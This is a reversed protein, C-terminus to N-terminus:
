GKRSGVELSLSSCVATHERAVRTTDRILVTREADTTVGTRGGRGSRCESRRTTRETAHAVSRVVRRWEDTARRLVSIHRQWIM